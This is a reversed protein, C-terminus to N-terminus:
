ALLLLLLICTFNRVTVQIAPTLFILFVDAINQQEHTIDYINFIHTLKNFYHGATLLFSCSSCRPETSPPIHPLKAEIAAHIMIHM